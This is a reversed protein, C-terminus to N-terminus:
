LWVPREDESWSQALRPAYTRLRPVSQKTNLVASIHLGFETGHQYSAGLSLGPLLEHYVGYSLETKPPEAGGQTESSYLDPNYEAVVRTKQNPLQYDIGGFIGVERGRFFTDAELEGGLGIDRSRVM